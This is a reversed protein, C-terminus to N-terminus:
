DVWAWPAPLCAPLCAPVCRQREDVEEVVTTIEALMAEREMVLQQLFNRDAHILYETVAKQELRSRLDQIQLHLPSDEELALSLAKGTAALAPALSQPGAAGQEQLAPAETAAAAVAAAATSSLLSLSLSGSRAALALSPVSSAAPAAAAASSYAVLDDKLLQLKQVLVKSSGGAEGEDAARRIIGDLSNLCAM